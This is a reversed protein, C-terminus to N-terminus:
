PMKLQNFQAFHIARSSSFRIISGFIFDSNFSFLPTKRDSRGSPKGGFLGTSWEM